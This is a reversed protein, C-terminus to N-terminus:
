SAAVAGFRRERKQFTHIAASLDEAGFDPWLVETFVLETYACQWLLFNSIRQEGSTRILLDPDPMAATDLFGTFGAEDLDEPTLDGSAASAAIKKAAALIEQRGGYSLAITLVLGDNDATQAEADAIHAQIEKPLRAREGIVQLRVNSEVLEKLHRQVYLRLLGMLDHVEDAPRAWNEHSFGFLTLYKVGLEGAARVTAKVSEAGKRHGATRPLGRAKAWRGNGDMIIAVHAPIAGDAHSAQAVAPKLHVPSEVTM